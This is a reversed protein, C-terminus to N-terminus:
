SNACVKLNFRILKSLNTNQRHISNTITGLYVLFQESNGAQDKLSSGMHKSSTLKNCKPKTKKLQKHM